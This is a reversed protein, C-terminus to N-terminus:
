ARPLDDGRQTVFLTPFNLAFLHVLDVEVTVAWDAGAILELFPSFLSFPM